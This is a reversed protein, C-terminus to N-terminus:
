YVHSFTCYPIHVYPLLATIKHKNVTIERICVNKLWEVNVNVNLSEEANIQEAGCLKLANARKKM